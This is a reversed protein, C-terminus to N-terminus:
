AAALPEFNPYRMSGSATFGTEAPNIVSRTSPMARKQGWRQKCLYARVARAWALLEMLWGNPLVPILAILCVFLAVRLQTKLHNIVFSYLEERKEAIRNALNKVIATCQAGMGGKTLFVM